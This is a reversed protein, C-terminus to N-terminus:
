QHLIHRLQITSAIKKQHSQIWKILKDTDIHSTIHPKISVFTRHTRGPVYDFVRSEAVLEKLVLDLDKGFSHQGHHLSEPAINCARDFQASIDHLCKLSESAQVITAESVNAGLGHLYDKLTRNLHEMYLDVPINNGAGGCTNVFRCWTLEYAIRPTATANVAGLLYLAELAYKTHGGYRWYLLMFKWCRLVRIGDGEHIADRLELLLLGDNLVACAYNYIGDPASKQVSHSIVPEDETEQLWQPLKRKKPQPPHHQGTAYSHETIIRTVHPNSDETRVPMLTASSNAMEAVIVYRDVIKGIANKLFPWQHFPSGVPLANKSPKDSVNSMGFFHMSAALVHAVVVLEFFDLAQNFKGSIDASINRRNILNRLQLLTGGQM